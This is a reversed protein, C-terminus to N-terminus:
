TRTGEEQLTFSPILSYELLILEKKRVLPELFFVFFFCSFIRASGGGGCGAGNGSGGGIGDGGGKKEQKTRNQKM